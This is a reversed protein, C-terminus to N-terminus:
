KRLEALDYDTITVRQGDIMKRFQYVHTKSNYYEGTRLIRGKNDKRKQQSM